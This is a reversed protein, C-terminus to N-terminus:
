NAKVGMSRPGPQARTARQIEGARRSIDDSSAVALAARLAAQRQADDDLRSAIDAVNFWWSRKITDSEVLDIARRYQEDAERYRARLAASEARAALTLPDAAAQLPSTRPEDLILDLLGEAEAQGQERLLRAAALRVLASRPLVGLWQATTWERSSALERVIGRIRQEGPLLYRPVSPDESFRAPDARCPDGSIAIALAQGYMALAAANEGASVLRRATTVLCLVDRSLAISRFSVTRKSEKPELQAAVLRATPDLPSIQLAREVLAGIEERSHARDGQFRSLYIAWHALHQATSRTWMGEPPDVSEPLPRLQVARDASLLRDTMISASYSDCGWWWSLVCAALGTALVFAVLPPGALWAPVSWHGPERVVTPVAHSGSPQATKIGAASSTAQPRGTSQHCALIDKASPWVAATVGPEGRRPFEPGPETQRTARRPAEELAAAQTNAPGTLLVQSPEHAPTALAAPTAAPAALTAAPTAIEEQIAVDSPDSAVLPKGSAPVLEDESGAPLRDRPVGTLPQDTANQQTHLRPAAMRADAPDTPLVIPPTGGRAAGPAPCEYAPNIPPPAAAVARPVKPEKLPVSGFGAPYSPDIPEPIDQSRQSRAKIQAAAARWRTEWRERVSATRSLEPNPGRRQGAAPARADREIARQASGSPKREDTAPQKAELAYVRRETLQSATGSYMGWDPLATRDHRLTLCYHGVRFPVDFALPCPGSVSRGDLLIPSEASVPVLRWSRGRRYLRCVEEALEPGPLRVECHIARGIRVLNWPIEVISIPGAEREQIHLCTSEPM